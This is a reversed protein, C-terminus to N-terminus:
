NLGPYPMEIGRFNLSKAKADVTVNLKVTIKL